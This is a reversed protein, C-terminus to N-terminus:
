HSSEKTDVSKRLRCDNEPDTHSSQMRDLETRLLRITESSLQVTVPKTDDEEEMYIPCRCRFRSIWYLLRM